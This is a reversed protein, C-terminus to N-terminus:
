YYTLRGVQGLVSDMANQVAKFKMVGCRDSEIHQFLASLANFRSGCEPGRCVYIKQAHRPSNLHQNLGSLHRFESNCLYCEFAYGNWANHNASYTIDSSNGSGILRSPDTIINNTDYRRVYTNVTSRNMGSSCNGSELHLVLAPRSVFAMDCGRFPCAVDKPRHVSSNLHSQLNSASNFHRNCPACFHHNESQRYHEKLGFDNEFIKNCSSCYAHADEYHEVLDCHDDFHQSCRQCYHHRPSQVWHEKLGVWTPFDLNCDHCENHASSNSIHQDYASWNRFSRECRDCYTM